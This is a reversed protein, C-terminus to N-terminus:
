GKVTELTARLLKSSAVGNASQNYRGATLVVRRELGPVVFLRQGGNGMCATWAPGAGPGRTFRGQWWQHSYFLGDVAAIRPRMPAAVWDAPVVTLAHTNSGDSGASAILRCLADSGVSDACGM